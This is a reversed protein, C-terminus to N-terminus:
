RVVCNEHVISGAGRTEGREERVCAEVEQTTVVADDVHQLAQQPPHSFNAESMRVLGSQVSM